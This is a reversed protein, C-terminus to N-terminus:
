KLLEEREKTLNDFEYRAKALNMMTQKLEFFLPYKKLAHMRESRTSIVWPFVHEDRENDKLFKILKMYKYLFIYFRRPHPHGNEGFGNKIREEKSMEAYAKLHEQYAKEVANRDYHIRSYKSNM